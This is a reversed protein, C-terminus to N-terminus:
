PVGGVAIEGNMLKPLLIDRMQSLNLNQEQNHEILRYLNDVAEHYKKMILDGPYALKIEKVDDLNITPRTSGGSVGEWYHQNSLEKIVNFLYYKNYKQPHPAIKMVSSAVLGKQFSNPLRALKGITAGTKALLIDGPYAASRILSDFKEETIYTITDKIFNGEFSLNIVRIVPVGTEQYEDAHM